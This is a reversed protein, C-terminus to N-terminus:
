SLKKKVMASVRGGDAAGAVKALAEKMAKGMDKMGAAGTSKIAADVITALQADDMQKPLYAELVTVEKAEKDALDPRNGKSYADISEKRQKILTQLISSVAADDMPKDRQDIEKKKIESIALRLCDTRLQDRAKTSAIMDSQIKERLAV